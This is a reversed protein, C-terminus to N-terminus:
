LLKQYFNNIHHHTKITFNDPNLLYIQNLVSFMDNM